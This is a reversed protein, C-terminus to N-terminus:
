FDGVLNAYEAYHKPNMVIQDAKYGYARIKESM